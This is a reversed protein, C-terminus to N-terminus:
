KASRPPNQVPTHIGAQLVSRRLAVTGLTAMGAAASLAIRSPHPIAFIIAPLITGFTLSDILYRNRQQTRTLDRASLRSAENGHRLDNIYVAHLTASALGFTTAAARVCPMPAGSLGLAVSSGAQAADAIFLGTLSKKTWSPVGKSDNLFFGDYSMLVVGATSAVIKTGTRIPAPLPLLSLVGASTFAAFAWSGRAIWSKSPKAFVKWVRDPRGLDAWLLVGKVGSAIALGTAKAPLSHHAAGFVYTGAGIAGAAMEIWMKPIAWLTDRRYRLQSREGELWEVEESEEKLGTGAPKIRLVSQIFTEASQDVFRSAGDLTRDLSRKADLFARPVEFLSM